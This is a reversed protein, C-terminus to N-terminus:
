GVIRNRSSRCALTIRHLWRPLGSPLTLSLRRIAGTAVRRASSSFMGTTEVSSQTPLSTSSFIECIVSSDTSSRSFTRKWGPSSAL